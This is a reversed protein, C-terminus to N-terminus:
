GTLLATLIRARGKPSAFLRIILGSLIAGVFAVGLRVHDLSLNFAAVLHREFEMTQILRASFVSAVDMV